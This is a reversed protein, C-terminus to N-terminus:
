VGEKRATLEGAKASFKQAKLKSSERGVKWGEMGGNRM